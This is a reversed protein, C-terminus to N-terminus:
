RTMHTPTDLFVTLLRPMKWRIVDHAATITTTPACGIADCAAKTLVWTAPRGLISRSLHDVFDGFAITPIPLRAAPQVYTVGATPWWGGAMDQHIQFSALMRSVSVWAAAQDPRGDPRPWGFPRMGLATTQWLIQNAAPTAASPRRLNAGLARYTAVVDEDPTRVKAGAAARFEASDVLELLVPQIATGNALYVEALRDVLESSPADSVFRIALKRAIRQATSPHNALYSLYARAAAQGDAATNPHEFDLVKVTGTWHATPDYRVNWTNWVDVRYGTLIRASNKVDNETYGSERGVTHLELLERGLNENPAKKTSQANDLYCGMAPHTVAVQLLREFSTLALARITKGYSARFYQAADAEAPVHLHNEWFATMTELVQRESHIRRALCWREYNAVAEWIPETKKRDRALLTSTSATNSTWWAATAQYFTDPASASLQQAFWGAAGGAAAIQRGLAPTWGGTFRNVLHLDEPALISIPQYVAAKVAAAPKGLTRATHHLTAPLAAAPSPAAARAESM